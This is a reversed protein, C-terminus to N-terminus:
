LTGEPEEEHAECSESEGSTHGNNKDKITLFQPETFLLLELLIAYDERWQEGNKELVDSLKKRLALIADKVEADTKNMM